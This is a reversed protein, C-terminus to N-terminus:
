RGSARRGRAERRRGAPAGPPRAVCGPVVVPSPRHRWGPWGSWVVTLQGLRGPRNSLVRPRPWALDIARRRFARMLPLDPRRLLVSWGDSRGGMSPLETITPSIAPSESPASSFLSYTRTNMSCPVRRICRPPTVAFGVPSSRGAWRAPPGARGRCGERSACVQRFSGTVSRQISMCRILPVARCLPRMPMRPAIASPAVPRHLPHVTRM